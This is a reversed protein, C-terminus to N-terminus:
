GSYLSVLRFRVEKNDVKTNLFICTRYLKYSTAPWHNEGPVGTVGVLLVSRWSIVSISNFTANVVGRRVAPCTQLPQQHGTILCICHFRDLGFRRLVLKNTWFLCTNPKHIIFKPTLGTIWGILALFMYL